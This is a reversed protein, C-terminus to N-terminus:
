TGYEDNRYEISVTRTIPLDDRSCGSIDFQWDNRVSSTAARDLLRYGSSKLVQTATARGTRDISVGILVTGRQGRLQSRLPFVTLAQVAHLLCNSDAYAPTSLTALSSSALVALLILPTNM